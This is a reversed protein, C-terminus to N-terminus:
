APKEEKDKLNDQIAKALEKYDIQEQKLPKQAKPRSKKIREQIAEYEEQAAEMYAQRDALDMHTLDPMDDNEGEYIPIKMGGLPLGRAYRSLIDKVSLSQDPITISPKTNREGPNNGASYPYRIKPKM